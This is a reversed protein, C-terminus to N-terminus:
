PSVLTGGCVHRPPGLYNMQLSVAWMYRGKKTVPTGGVIRGELSRLSSSNSAEITEPEQAGCLALAAVLAVLAVSNRM